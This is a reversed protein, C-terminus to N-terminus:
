VTEPKLTAALLGVLDAVTAVDRPDSALEGFEVDFAEELALAMEIPDLSDAGLDDLRAEDVIRELPVHLHDAIIQRARADQEPTM